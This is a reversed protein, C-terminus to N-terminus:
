RQNNDETNNNNCVADLLSKELFAPKHSMAAIKWFLHNDAAPPSGSRAAGPRGSRRAGGPLVHQVDFSKSNTKGSCLVGFGKLETDWYLVPKGSPHPAPLRGIGSKTLRITPMHPDGFIVTKAPDLSWVTL